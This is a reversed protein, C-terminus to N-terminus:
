CAHEFFFVYKLKKKEIEWFDNNYLKNSNLKKKLKQHKIDNRISYLKINILFKNFYIFNTNSEHILLSYM